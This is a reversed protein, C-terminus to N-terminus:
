QKLALKAMSFYRADIFEFDMHILKFARFVDIETKKEDISAKSVDHEFIRPSIFNFDNMRAQALAENHMKIWDIFSYTIIAAFHKDLFMPTIEEMPVNVVEIHTSSGFLYEAIDRMDEIEDLSLAYPWTNVTVGVDDLEEGMLNARNVLDEALIRMVFPYIGSIVSGNLVDASNNGGRSKWAETFQEQTILGDTLVDWFDNEREWYRESSILRKAAEPSITNIVGLRTDLLTDLDIFIRKLM